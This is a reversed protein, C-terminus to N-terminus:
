SASGAASQRGGSLASALHIPGFAIVGAVLSLGSAIFTLVLLAGITVLSGSAGANLSRETPASNELVALLLVLRRRLLSRPRFFRAYADAIRLPLVGEQAFALLAREILVRSTEDPLDASSHLRLYCATVYSTPEADALYRAFLTCEAAIADRRAADTQM